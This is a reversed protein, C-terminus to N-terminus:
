PGASERSTSRAAAVPSAVATMVARAFAESAIALSSAALVGNREAVHMSLETSTLRTVVALEPHRTLVALTVHLNTADADTLALVAAAREAGALRLTDETMADAVIVHHGAARLRSLNRSTSDADVVVIRHGHEALLEAVRLGVNGAGVIVVHGRGRVPVHGRLVDLRRSVVWGSLLAYFIAVFAAGALMLLMGLVKTVDSVQRPTIDGYGVTFVTTWVFYLGDIVRLDLAWAFYLTAVVVLLIASVATTTLVRDVVVYPLHRARREPAPRRSGFRTIARLALETFIPASVSSMSLVVVGTLTERLYAGLTEDFLRVILPLDARVRRAALAADVNQSDDDTTLVLAAATDIGGALLEGASRTGAVVVRAGLRELERAQSAAEAPSVLAVVEVGIGLLRDIVAMGLPDAGAVLIPSGTSVGAM